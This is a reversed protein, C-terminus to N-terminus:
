HAIRINLVLTSSHKFYISRDPHLCSSSHTQHDWDGSIGNDSVTALHGRFDM